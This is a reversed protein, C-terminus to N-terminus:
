IRSWIAVAVEVVNLLVFVVMQWAQRRIWWAVFLGGIFLHAADKYVDVLDMKPPEVTAGIYIRLVALIVAVLITLKM